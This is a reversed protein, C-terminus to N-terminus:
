MPRIERVEVNGTAFELVPCDQAIKVAEDLSQAKLMVYGGVMEKGEMFPGDTIVKKTGVVTKGGAALPQAGLMRGEDALRGLWNAWKQMHAQFAEPSTQPDMAEGGRVLMLYETM